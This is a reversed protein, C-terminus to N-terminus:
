VSLVATIQHRAHRGAAWCVPLPDVCPGRVEGWDVVTKATLANPMEPEVSIAAGKWFSHRREVLRDMRFDKLRAMERAMRPDCSLRHRENFEDMNSAIRTWTQASDAGRDVAFLMAGDRLCYFTLPMKGMLMSGEFVLDCGPDPLYGKLEQITIDPSVTLCRRIAFSPVCVILRIAAAM